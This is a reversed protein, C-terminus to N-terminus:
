FINKLTDGVAKVGDGVAKAGDGVAKTGSGTIDGLSKLVDTATRVISTYIATFIERVAEAPSAGDSEKGINTLRVTPLPFPVAKGLTWTSHRYNVRGDSLEFYEIVISRKQKEAKTDATQTQDSPIDPTQPPKQQTTQTQQEAAKEKKEEGAINQQITDFNSRGKVQEFAIFPKNITIEKIVIPESTKLLSALSVRVVVNSFSMLPDTTSYGPPNDIRMNKFSAYGQFIRVDVEELQIKTGLVKPGLKEAATKIMPSITANLVVAAIAILIFLVGLTISIIRLCKKM